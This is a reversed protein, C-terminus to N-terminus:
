GFPLLRLSILLFIVVCFLLIVPTLRKIMQRLAGSAKEQSNTLLPYLFKALSWTLFGLIIGALVDAILHMKVFLTSTTIIMVLLFIFANGIGSLRQGRCMFYFLWIFTVHMSPFNNASSIFDAGYVYVLLRQAISQGLSPRQFNVPFAFYVAFSSINAIVFSLLMHNLRHYDVIMIFSLLPLAFCGLYFWVFEPILPIQKDLSTSLDHSPLSSAFLGVIAFSLIWIFYILLTVKIYFRREQNVTEERKLM